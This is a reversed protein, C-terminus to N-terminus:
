FINDTLLTGGSKLDRVETDLKSSDYRDMLVAGAEYMEGAKRSAEEPNEAEIEVDRYNTEILVVLYKM